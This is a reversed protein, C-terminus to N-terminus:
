DKFGVLNSGYFLKAQDILSMGQSSKRAVKPCDKQSKRPQIGYSLTVNQTALNSSGPQTRLRTVVINEKSKALLRRNNKSSKNM